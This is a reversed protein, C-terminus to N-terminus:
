QIIESGKYSPLMEEAMELQLRGRVKERAEQFRLPDLHLTSPASEAVEAFVAILDEPNGFLQSGYRFLDRVRTLDRDEKHRKRREIPM